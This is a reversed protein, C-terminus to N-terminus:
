FLTQVRTWFEKFYYRELPRIFPFLFLVKLSRILGAHAGHPFGRIPFTADRIGWSVRDETDLLQKSSSKLEVEKRTLRLQADELGRETQEALLRMQTATAKHRAAEERAEVLQRNLDRAKVELSDTLKQM